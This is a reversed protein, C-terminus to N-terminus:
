KNLQLLQIETGTTFRTTSPSSTTIQISTIQSTADRWYGGSSTHGYISASRAYAGSANVQRFVNSAVVCPSININSSFVVTALTNITSVIGTFFSTNVNQASLAGAQTIQSNTSTYAGATTINNFLMVLRIDATSTGIAVGNIVVQWLKANNGLLGTINIFNTDGVVYQTNAELSSPLVSVVKITRILEVKNLTGSNLNNIATYINASGSVVSGNIKFIFNAINFRQVESQIDKIIVQTGQGYAVLTDCNINTILINKVNTRWQLQVLANTSTIYVTDRSQASVNAYGLLGFLVWIISRKLKFFPLIQLM